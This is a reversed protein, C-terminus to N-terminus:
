LVFSLFPRTTTTTPTTPPPNTTTTTSSSSSSSSSSTTTADKGPPGPPGAPGPDGQAGAPGSEGQPGRSGTVGDNGNAGSTGNMGASGPPGPPGPPGPTGNLGNLGPAGQVGAQGTAGTQGSVIKSVATINDTLQKNLANYQVTGPQAADLQARLAIQQENFQKAQIILAKEADREKRLEQNRTAGQWLLFGCLLFLIAIVALLISISRSHHQPNTSHFESIKQDLENSRDIIDGM